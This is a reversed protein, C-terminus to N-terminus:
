FDLGLASGVCELRLGVEVEARRAGKGWVFVCTAGAELYARLSGCRVTEDLVMQM